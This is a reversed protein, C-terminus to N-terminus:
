RPPIRVGKLWYVGKRISEVTSKEHALYASLTSAPRKGGLPVRQSLCADFLESLELPQGAAKLAHESVTIAARYAPGNVDVDPAEDNDHAAASGNPAKTKEVLAWGYKDALSALRELDHAEADLADAERQAKVLLADAQRRAEALLKAKKAEIIAKPDIMPWVSLHNKATM